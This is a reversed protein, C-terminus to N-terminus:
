DFDDDPKGSHEDQFFAEFEREGGFLIDEIVIEAVKDDPNPPHRPTRQQELEGAESTVNMAFQQTLSRNKEPRTCFTCARDFFRTQRTNRVVTVDPQRTILTANSHVRLARSTRTASYASARNLLRCMQEPDNVPLLSRTSAFSTVNADAIFRESSHIRFSTKRQKIIKFQTEKLRRATEASCLVKKAQKTDTTKKYRKGFFLFFTKDFVQCIYKYLAISKKCNLPPTCNELRRYLGRVTRIRVASM